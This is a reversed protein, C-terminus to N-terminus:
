HISHKTKLTMHVLYRDLRSHLCRPTSNLLLMSLSVTGMDGITISPLCKVLFFLYLYVSYFLVNASKPSFFQM